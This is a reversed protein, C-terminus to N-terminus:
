RQGVAEGRLQGSSEGTGAQHLQHGSSPLCDWTHGKEQEHGRDKPSHANGEQLFFVKLENLGGM